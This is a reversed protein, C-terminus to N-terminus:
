ELIIENVRGSFPVLLTFYKTTVYGAFMQSTNNEYQLAMPQRWVGDRLDQSIDVVLEKAASKHFRGALEVHMFKTATRGTATFQYLLLEARGYEHVVKVVGEDTLIAIESSDPQLCVDLHDKHLIGIRSLHLDIVMLRTYNNGIKAYSICTFRDSVNKVKLDFPAEMEAYLTPTETISDRFSEAVYVRLRDAGLWGQVDDGIDAFRGARLEDSIDPYMNTARANTITVLGTRSYVWISDAYFDVHAHEKSSIGTFDIVPQFNWHANTSPICQGYVGGKSGLVLMGTNYPVIKIIKGIDYQLGFAEAGTRLAPTFDYPDEHSASYITDCTHLIIHKRIVALGELRYSTDVGKLDVIAAEGNSYEYVIGSSDAYISKGDLTGCGLNDHEVVSVCQADGCCGSLWALAGGDFLDNSCTPCYDVSEYGNETPLCNKAYVSGMFNRHYQFQSGGHAISEKQHLAARGTWETPRYQSVTTGNLTYALNISRRSKM